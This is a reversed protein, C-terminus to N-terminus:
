FGFAIGLVAQIAWQRPGIKGNRTRDAGTKWDVCRKGRIVKRRVQGHSNRGTDGLKPAYKCRHNKERQYSILEKHRQSSSLKNLRGRVNRFKRGRGATCYGNKVTNHRNVKRDTWEVGGVTAFTLGTRSRNPPWEYHRGGGGKAGM